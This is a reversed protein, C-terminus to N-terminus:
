TASLITTINTDVAGRSVMAQLTVRGSGEGTDELCLFHERQLRPIRVHELAVLLEIVPRLTIKDGWQRDPQRAQEVGLGEQRGDHLRIRAVVFQRQIDHAGHCLYAPILM